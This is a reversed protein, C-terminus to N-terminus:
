RRTVECGGILYVRTDNDRATLVLQETGHTSPIDQVVDELDRSHIDYFAVPLDRGASLPVTISEGPPILFLYQRGPESREFIGRGHDVLTEMKWWQCRAMLNSLIRAQQRMYWGHPSKPNPWADPPQDRDPFYPGKKNDGKRKVTKQSTSAYGCGMVIGWWAQITGGDVIEGQYAPEDNVVPKQEDWVSMTLTRQVDIHSNKKQFIAHSPWTQGCYYWESQEHVSLPHCYPDLARIFEGAENVENTTYHGKSHIENGLCFWVNSFAAYRATVYRKYFDNKLQQYTIDPGALILDAQIGAEQMAAVARDLKQWYSPVPRSFNYGNEDDGPEFAKVEGHYRQTVTALRIKNFYGRNWNITDRIVQESCRMLDYHTNGTVFLYDGNDFRFHRGVAHVFGPNNGQVCKVTGRKDGVSYTWEGLETPAFRCRWTTSGDWFTPLRLSAGSEDHQFTGEIIATPDDPGDFAIEFLDYPGVEVISVVTCTLCTLFGCFEIM